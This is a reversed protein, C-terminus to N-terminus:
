YHFINSGKKPEWCRAELPFTTSVIRICHFFVITAPRDVREAVSESVVQQPVWLM